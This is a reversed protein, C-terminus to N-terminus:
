VVYENRANMQAVGRKKYLTHAALMCFESVKTEEPLHYFILPLSLLIWVVVVMFSLVVIETRLWTNVSFKPMEGLVPGTSAARDRPLAASCSANSEITFSVFKKTEVSVSALEMETQETRSQMAFHSLIYHSSNVPRTRADEEHLYRALHM